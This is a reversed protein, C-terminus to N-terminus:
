IIYLPSFPISGINWSSILASCFSSSCISCLSGFPSDLFMCSVCVYPSFVNVIVTVSASESRLGDYRTGWYLFGTIASLVLRSNSIAVASFTSNSIGILLLILICIPPM